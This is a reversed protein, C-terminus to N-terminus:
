QNRQARRVVGEVLIKWVTSLGISDNLSFSFLFRQCAGHESILYTSILYNLEKKRSSKIRQVSMQIYRSRQIDRWREVAARDTQLHPKQRLPQLEVAHLAEAVHDEKVVVARVVKEGLYTGPSHQM